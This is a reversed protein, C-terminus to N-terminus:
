QRRRYFNANPTAEILEWTVTDTRFYDDFSAGVRTLAFNFDGYQKQWEVMAQGTNAEAAKVFKVLWEDGYLECRDDMFIRYGPAHYIVFGGDICDNFLHNPQGPKPEYKTLTSRLQLPWRESDLKAWHSWSAGLFQVIGVGFVIVSLVVVSRWSTVVNCGTPDYFDPRKAALLKAWRTKPWIDAIAIIAVVAFLPAHRVRSYAQVFWFLPLLWSVRWERPKTGSLMFLYVAALIFLPWATPQRFDTPAHEQIIESLHPMKMVLLWVQVLGSGYPTVFATLGCAIAILLLVGFDARSRVPSHWGLVRCVSWGAGALGITTMGGLVGGHTNAWLWYVPVLWWLQQRRIRGAEFDTIMITTFALGAISMLHPRVHFHSAAAALTLGSLLLCAIPHLGTRILRLTLATFLWALIATAAVLLSHFGNVRHVLAMAVEGLWQNPIFYEGGFTFTFPDRDFFGEHLIKEGIVTHWFTGPDRFFNSRGGVILLVWFGVFIAPPWWWTSPTTAIPKADSM